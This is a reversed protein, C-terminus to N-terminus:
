DYIYNKRENSQFYEIDFSKGNELKTLLIDKRYINIDKGTYNVISHNSVKAKQISEDIKQNYFMKIKKIWNSLTRYLFSVVLDSLNINIINDKGESLPLSSIHFYKSINKNDSSDNMIEILIKSKELLPEWEGAYYNYCLIKLVVIINLTYSYKNIYEYLLKSESISISLFPYLTNTHDDILTLNLGQSILIFNSSFIDKNIKNDLKTKKNNKEKEIKIRNILTNIDLYSEINFKIIKTFFIIDTYSSRISIKEINLNSNTKILYNKNELDVIQMTQKTEYSFLFNDIIKRKRKGENNLLSIYPYIDFFSVNISYIDFCNDNSSQGNKINNYIKNKIESIKEKNMGIIIESTLCLTEQEKISLNTSLM